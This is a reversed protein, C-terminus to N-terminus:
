KMLSLIFQETPNGLHLYNLYMAGLLLLTLFFLVSYDTKTFQLQRRYTRQDIKYDFGRSLIAVSIDQSRELTALFVPLLLAAFVKLRLILNPPQINYGRARQADNIIETQKSLLGVTGFGLTLAMGMEPPLGNGIIWQAIFAIVLCVVFAIASQQTTNYPLSRITDLSTLHAIIFFLVGLIVTNLIYSALPRKKHKTITLALDVPPTTYLMLHVALVVSFFRFFVAVARVLSEITVPLWQTFPILYFLFHANKNTFFIIQFLSFTLFVLVLIRLNANLVKRDVCRAGVYYLGIFLIGMLIPDVVVIALVTMAIFLLLKTRADLRHLLSDKKQYEIAM